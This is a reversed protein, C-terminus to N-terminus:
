NGDDLLHRANLQHRDVAAQASYLLFDIGRGTGPYENQTHLRRFMVFISERFSSDIGIGNDSVSFIWEAGGDQASITVEPPREGRFKLANGVINALMNLLATEDGQVVPLTEHTVSAGSADISVLASDIARDAVENMDLTASAAGKGIRSYQLLTEILKEMRQVGDVMYSIYEDATPDVRGHFRRAFLEAFGAVMRLPERLDHSAIYAFHELDENSRELEQQRRELEQQACKRETIDLSVGEYHEVNGGGDHMARMSSSCWITRGDTRRFQQEFNCVVGDRALTALLEARQNPEVWLENIKMRKLNEVDAFGFMEVFAPNADLIRGDPTTSSIGIPVQNFLRRYRAEAHRHERRLEADRLEREVAHPLRALHHKLLYDQAGAKMAEVAVEEGATGSVLIFPLDPHQVRLLKLAALGNFRPM